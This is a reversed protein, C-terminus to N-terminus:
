GPRRSLVEELLGKTGQLSDADGNWPSLPALNRDEFEALAKKAHAVYDESVRATAAIAL